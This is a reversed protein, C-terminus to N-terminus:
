AGIGSTRGSGSVNIRHFTDPDPWRDAPVLLYVQATVTKEATTVVPM